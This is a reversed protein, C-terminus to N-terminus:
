CDPLRIDCHTGHKTRRDHIIDYGLVRHVANAKGLGDASHVVDFTKCRILLLFKHLCGFAGM